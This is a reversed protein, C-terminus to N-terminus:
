KRAQAAVDSQDCLVFGAGSPDVERWDVEDGRPRRWVWVDSGVVVVRLDATADAILEQVFMPFVTVHELDESTVTNVFPAIGFGPSLAKAIVPGEAALQQAVGPANTVVHTPVAIGLRRAVALQHLKYEARVVNCPDDVWRVGIAYLAGIL